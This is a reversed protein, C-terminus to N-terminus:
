SARDLGSSALYTQNKGGILDKSVFRIISKQMLFLDRCFSWAVDEVEESSWAGEEDADEDSLSSASEECCRSADEM